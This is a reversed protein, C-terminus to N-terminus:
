GLMVDLTMMLGFGIAFALTGRNNDKGENVEPILEEVVVYIMAGAAFALMYPLIPTVISALIITLIAGVPEVIGSLVGLGFSAGLSKGEARFPLSIIAGEPFNQISIGIALLIAAAMTVPSEDSLAGALIAGCAAGEPFNHITVALMLMTTKGLSSKRGDPQEQGVHRHPVMCDVALLALIGLMFGLLAPFFSFKGLKGSMEIAPMLLSWVSAAVMVGCAFGIFLRRLGDQVGKKLFFVCAAGMSTGLFPLGLGLLVGM